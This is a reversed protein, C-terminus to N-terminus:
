FYHSIGTPARRGLRWRLRSITLPLEIWSSDDIGTRKCGVFKAVTVSNPNRAVQCNPPGVEEAGEHSKKLWGLSRLTFGFARVPQGKFNIEITLGLPLRTIARQVAGWRDIWRSRAREVAVFGM